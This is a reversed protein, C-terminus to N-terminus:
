VQCVSFKDKDMLVLGDRTLEIKTPKFDDAPIETM